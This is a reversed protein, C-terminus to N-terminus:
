VEVLDVVHGAARALARLDEPDSTAITDGDNALLVLAADIVDSKRTKALLEGADKGLEEDLAHVDVSALVLSLLASRPGHGRWAQGVIGGHTVPVDGAELASKLRRWMPRDNRDIAILAGADLILSV